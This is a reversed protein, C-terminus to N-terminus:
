GVRTRGLAIHARVEDVVYDPERTIQEHTFELVLLGAAAVANRRRADAARQAILSHGVQGTVEVVIGEREFLFDVRAAIQGERRIVQQVKPRALDSAHLLKLFERELWSETPGLERRDLISEFVSVGNRGRCRIRQLTDRLWGDTAKGDRVAEDVANEVAVMSVRPVAAALSFLARAVGLTPIGRVRVVDRRSLRTASHVAVGGVRYDRVTELAVIAPPRGPGFGGIGHLWCATGEAAVGGADICAAMVEQEPTRASGGVLYTRRGVPVLLGRGVLTEREAPSIGRALLDDRGLVGHQRSAIKWLENGGNM